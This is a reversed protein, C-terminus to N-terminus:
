WRYVSSVRSRVRTEQAATKVEAHAIASIQDFDESSIHGVARASKPWQIVSPICAIVQSSLMGASISSAYSLFYDARHRAPSANRVHCIVAKSGGAELVLFRGSQTQYITRPKM